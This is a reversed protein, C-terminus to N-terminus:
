VAELGSVSDEILGDMEGNMGADDADDALLWQLQKMLEM